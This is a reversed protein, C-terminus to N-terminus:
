HRLFDLRDVTLRDKSTVFLDHPEGDYEKLTSNAIAKAAPRGAADIPVTKDATGRIILRPCRFSTLEPRFDTTAFAKACALTPKLGAQM